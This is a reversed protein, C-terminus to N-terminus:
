KKDLHVSNDKKCSRIICPLSPHVSCNMPQDLHEYCFTVLLLNIKWCLRCLEEKCDVCLLFKIRLSMFLWWCWIHCWWLQSAPEWNLSKNMNPLLHYDSPALYPPYSPHVVSELDCDCVAAMSVLSRYAVASEKHFLLGKMLKGLHKTEIARGWCTPVYEGKVTILM